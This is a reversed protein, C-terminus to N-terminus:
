THKLAQVVQQDAKIRQWIARKEALHPIIEVRIVGERPWNQVQQLCTCPNKIFATHVYVLTFFFVLAKALLLFEIALQVQSFNLIYFVQM